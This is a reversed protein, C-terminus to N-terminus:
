KKSREKFREPKHSYQRAPTKLCEDCPPDEESNNLYECMLCYKEFDVLKTETDM